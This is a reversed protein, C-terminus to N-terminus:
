TIKKLYKFVLEPEYGARILSAASKERAQSDDNYQKLKKHLLQFLTQAYLDPEIADLAEEIIPASIDRMRLEQRIRIKGWHNNRFKGGAYAFAFRHEDFFKDTLLVDFIQQADSHDAGLEKLKARVEKPCRERYACFNEMRSLLEDPTLPSTRNNKKNPPFM